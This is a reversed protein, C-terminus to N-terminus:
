FKGDDVTERASAGIFVAISGLPEGATVRLPSLTTNRGVRAVPWVDETNTPAEDETSGDGFVEGESTTEDEMM